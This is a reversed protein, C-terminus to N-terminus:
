ANEQKPRYQLAEAVHPETIYASGELDAITRAVRVLRMYARASISLRTAANNLLGQGQETVRALQKIQGNTMSANLVDTTKFRNLQADRAKYICSLPDDTPEATNRLLRSHDIANVAVHLDIRDLIPGSLRHKYKLIQAATCRCEGTDTGFYGCPCPNATAMLIFNAPFTARQAARVITVTRDELPQRLAELTPRAFEPMEDLFLVGTHSLSVEGPRIKTGGGIVSVTSATHHPSRLPRTDVLQEYNNSALSHLHTAELIENHSMPPLLLPLVKALMSKGTGPPGTLLVNHGGAAVIQLARKATDQGVIQALAHAATAQINKTAAKNAAPAPYTTMPTKAHVLISALEALTAVPVLNVGPVLRAQSHNAAPIYFTKVGLNYGAILMGIIGRIPRISGDLGIEGLFLEDSTFTHKTQQSGALIAAAIALDLATSDKPIDAPALNITIRKAPLALKSNAFAGRLREKAEDIARGGLGVIVIAPLGNTVHCEADVLVGESGHQLISRINTMASLLLALQRLHLSGSALRPDKTKQTKTTPNPTKAKLSKM